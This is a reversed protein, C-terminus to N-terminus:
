QVHPHLAFEATLELFEREQRDIHGKNDPLAARCLDEDCM